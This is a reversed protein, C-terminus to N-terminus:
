HIKFELLDREHGVELHQRVALTRLEPQYQLMALWITGAWDAVALPVTTSGAFPHGDSDRLRAANM